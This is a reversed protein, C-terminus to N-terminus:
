VSTSVRRVAVEGDFEVVPVGYESSTGEGRFVAWPDDDGEASHYAAVDLVEVAVQFPVRDAEPLRVTRTLEVWEASIKAVRELIKPVGGIVVSFEEGAEVRIRRKPVTTVFGRYDQGRTEVLSDKRVTITANM